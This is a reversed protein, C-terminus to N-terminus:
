AAGSAPEFRKKVRVAGDEPQIGAGRRDAWKQTLEAGFLFILSTYYVWVFLLALSAAGAGFSGAFDARGLYIGLGFKGIWFLLATVLAGVAVDKWAIHADPLFKFMAGFLVGVVLITVIENLISLLTGGGGMGTAEGLKATMGQVAATITLSVILLFGVGLIMALSLLRKTVFNWVGGKEPDPMVEWATNLADQLAVVVGTAGFLIGGFTLIWKWPSANDMQASQLMADIQEQEEPSNLGAFNGVQDKIVADGGGDGGTGTVGAYWGVMTVLLVLLAPLAFVTYYSMAAAMRMCNDDIFDTAAAKVIAFLSSDDAPSAPATSM